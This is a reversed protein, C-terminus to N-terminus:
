PKFNDSTHIATYPTKKYITGILVPFIVELRQGLWLGVRVRVEYAVAIMGGPTEMTAHTAHGSDPLGPMEPCWSVTSGGRIPNGTERVVTETVRKVNGGAKLKVLKVLVAEARLDRSSGNEVETSLQIREGMTFGSSPLEAALVVPGSVCCLCCESGQVEHRVPESATPTVRVERAIRVRQETTHDAKLAGRTTIRGTLVYRVWADAGSSAGLGAEWSPTCSEPISFAFPFEHRGAPLTGDGHEKELEEGWLIVSQNVYDETARHTESEEGHGETWKVKGSGSLAVEILRYSKGEDIQVVAKGTLKSGSLIGRPSPPDDLVIEFVKVM